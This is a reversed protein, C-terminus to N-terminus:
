CKNNYGFHGHRKILVEFVQARQATLKKFIDIYVACHIM